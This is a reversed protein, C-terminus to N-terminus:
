YLLHAQLVVEIRDSEPFDRGPDFDLLHVLGQLELFPYVLSDIGLGYRVVSGTKRDIDPDYFNYTALLDVGRQLSYSLEHSTAVATVERASRPDRQSWDVEGLWIWRGWRLYAFPGYQLTRARSADDFYVSGGAAGGIPGLQFRQAARGSGALTNDDDAISGRAGNLLAVEADLGGPSTALEIGVDTQTPPFFGMYQRVFMTHDAFRWGYSPQFRGLKVYGTGPLVRAMGWIDLTSSQGRSVYASYREDLQFDLTVNGQMQLFDDDPRGDEAWLFNTRLDLGILIDDNIQPQIKSLEDLTRAHASMETPILFQTAYLTRQGGGTPNTHCLHCSQQYRATYRPLARAPNPSLLAALPVVIMLAARAISRM